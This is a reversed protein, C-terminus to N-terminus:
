VYRVFRYAVLGPIASHRATRASGIAEEDRLCLSVRM